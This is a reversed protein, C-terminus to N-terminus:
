VDADEEEDVVEVSGNTVEKAVACLNAYDGSKMRALVDSLEDSRGSDDLCEKVKAMVFFANGFSGESWIKM